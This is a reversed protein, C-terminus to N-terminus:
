PQASLELLKLVTNWNRATGEPDSPMALDGADDAMYHAYDAGDPRFVVLYWKPLQDGAPGDLREVLAEIQAHSRAIVPVDFGFETSIVDRMHREVSQPSRRSTVVVNGSQLHTVVDRYGAGELVERLRAMPVKRKGGLNIARLFAAHRAM